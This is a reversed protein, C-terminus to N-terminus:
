RKRRGKNKTLSHSLHWYNCEPCQYLRLRIGKENKCQNVVTEGMKKSYCIKSSMPCRRIDPRSNELNM